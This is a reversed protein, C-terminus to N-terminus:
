FLHLWSRMSPHLASVDAVRGFEDVILSNSSIVEKHVDLRIHRRTRADNGVGREDLLALAERFDADSYSNSLVTSLKTTLPNNGRSSSPTPHSVPSLTGPGSTGQTFGDLALYSDLAM